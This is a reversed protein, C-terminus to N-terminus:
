TRIKRYINESYSRVKYKNRLKQQKEHMSKVEEYTKIETLKELDRESNVRSHKLEEVTLKRLSPASRYSLIDQSFSLPNPMHSISRTSNVPENLTKSKSQQNYSLAKIPTLSTNNILRRKKNPCIPSFDFTMKNFPLAPLSQDRDLSM